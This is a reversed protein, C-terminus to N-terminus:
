LFRPRPLYHFCCCTCSHGDAVSWICSELKHADQIIGKNPVHPAVVVNPVGRCVTSSDDILVHGIKSQVSAMQWNASTRQDDAQIAIGVDTAAGLRELQWRERWWRRRWRVWWTWRRRWWARRSRGKWWRHRFRWTRWPRRRWRRWRRWWLQEIVDRFDRMSDDIQAVVRVAEVRTNSACQNHLRDLVDEVYVSNHSAKWRIRNTAPVNVRAEGTSIWSLNTAM